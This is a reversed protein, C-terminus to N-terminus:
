MCVLYTHAQLLPQLYNGQMGTYRRLLNLNEPSKLPEQKVHFLLFKGEEKEGEMNEWSGNRWDEM